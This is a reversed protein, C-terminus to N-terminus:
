KNTIDVKVSAANFGRAKLDKAVREAAEVNLDAVVVKGGEKAYKEKVWILVMM